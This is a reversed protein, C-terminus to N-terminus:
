INGTNDNQQTKNELITQESIYIVSNLAKGFYFTLILVILISLYCYLNNFAILIMIITVPYYMFDAYMEPKISMRINYQNDNEIDPIKSLPNYGFKNVIREEIIKGAIQIIRKSYKKNALIIIDPLITTEIFYFFM